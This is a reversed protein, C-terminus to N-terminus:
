LIGTHENVWVATALPYFKKLEAIFRLKLSDYSDTENMYYVRRLSRGVQGANGQPDVYATDDFVVPRGPNNGSVGIAYFEFVCVMTGIQDTALLGPGTGSAYLKM